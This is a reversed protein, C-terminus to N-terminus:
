FFPIINTKISIWFKKKFYTAKIPFKYFLQDTVIFIRTNFLKEKM